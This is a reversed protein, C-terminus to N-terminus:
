HLNYLLYGTTLANTGRNRVYVSYTGATLNSFTKSYNSVRGGTKIVYWNEATTWNYIGIELNNSEPAWVCTDVALTASSGATIVNEVFDSYVSNAVAGPFEFRTYSARAKQVEAPTVRVFDEPNLENIGYYVIDEAAAIAVEEDPVEVIAYPVQNVASIESEGYYVTDNNAAGEAAFVPVCISFMLVLALMFTFFKKM